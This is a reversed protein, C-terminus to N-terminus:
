ELKLLTIPTTSTIRFIVNAYISRQEGDYTRNGFFMDQKHWRASFMTGLSRGPKSFLFGTKNFVEALTNNIGIGYYRPTSDSENKQYLFQGAQKKDSLFRVGFQGEARDAYRWNWRNMVNIQDYLPMDLFGDGNMDNRQKLLSGHALLTTGWNGKLKQNLHVNAEYRGRHNAYVNIFVREQNADDPKILDINLQGSISEYGNVVSGTGKTILISKIWTGPVYSLGYSSSLGRILPLNEFLIQSYVGDLGLLNIKKAGSVADTMAADVSPNTEFSESLNCCAAKLLGQSTIREANIPEFFLFQSAPLKEVITVGSLTDAPKLDVKIATPKKEKYEIAMMQYGIAKIMLTAPLSDPWSIKFKGLSDTSTGTSTKEWFVLAGAIKEKGDRGTITGTLQQAYTTHAILYFLIFLLGSKM